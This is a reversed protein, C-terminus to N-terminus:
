PRPAKLSGPPLQYVLRATARDAESLEPVRVRASMINREDTAHHLGILHGVEHRAIARVADADLRTGDPQHVALQINGGVIWGHQDHAWHTRGTMRSEFRDVWIIHIEARASDPTFSFAIPVGADAWTVFAERVLSPFSPDGDPPVPQVWVRMPDHRRDPWRHNVSDRAALLEGIYTGGARALLRATRDPDREPEPLASATISVAPPVPDVARHVSDASASDAASPPRGARELRTALEREPSAAARPRRSVVVGAALLGLALVVAARASGRRPGARPGARRAERVRSV